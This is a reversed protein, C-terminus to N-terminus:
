VHDIADQLQIPPNAFMQDADKVRLTFNLCAFLPHPNTEYSFIKLRITYSGVPVRSLDNYKFSFKMRKGKKLPCSIISVRTRIEDCSIDQDISFVPDPSDELYVDIHGLGNNFDIPNVIDMYVQISKEREVVKPTWSINLHAGEPGCVSATGTENYSTALLQLGSLPLMNKMKRLSIANAMRTLLSTSSLGNAGNDKPGDFEAVEGNEDGGRGFRIIEKVSIKKVVVVYKPRERGEGDEESFSLSVCVIISVLCQIALSRM